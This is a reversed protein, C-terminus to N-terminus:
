ADKVGLGNAAKTIPPRGRGKRTRKETIDMVWQSIILRALTSPLVGRKQAETTMEKEIDGSIRYQM